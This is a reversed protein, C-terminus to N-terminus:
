DKGRQEREQEAWEVNVAYILLIGYIRGASTFYSVKHQSFNHGVLTEVSVTVQKKKWYIM